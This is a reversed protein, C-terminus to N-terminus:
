TAVQSSPEEGPELILPVSIDPFSVQPFRGDGTMELTGMTSAGGLRLLGINKLRAELEDLRVRGDTINLAGGHLDSDGELTLTGTGLKQLNGPPTGAGGPASITGAFVGSRNSSGISM